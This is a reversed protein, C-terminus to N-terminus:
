SDMESTDLQKCICHSKKPCHSKKGIKKCNYRASSSVGFWVFGCLGGLALFVSNLPPKAMSQCLCRTLDPPSRCLFHKARSKATVVLPPVWFTAMFVPKGASQCCIVRLFLFMWEVSGQFTVGSLLGSPLSPPGVASCNPTQMQLPVAEPHAM